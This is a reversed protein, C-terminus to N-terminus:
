RSSVDKAPQLTAPEQVPRERFLTRRQHLAESLTRSFRTMQNMQAAFRTWYSLLILVMIMVQPSSLTFDLIGYLIITPLAFLFLTASYNLKTNRSIKQVKFLQYGGILLIAIFFLACFIGSSSLISLFLDHAHPIMSGNNASYVRLFGFNTAGFFPNQQFIHWSNGWIELRKAMSTETGSSRPMWDYLVKACVVTFLAAPVFLRKSLKFIFLLHLLIMIVFGARSGTEYIAFDLLPMLMLSLFITAKKKLQIARLLEVSLCAVALILLYCAYNPNFTSGYLRPVGKYGFLFHGTMFSVATGILSDDPILTLLKESFFIYVGGWITIWAFQRLRLQEPRRLWFLYIGFYGILMATSLLDFFRGSILISGLSAVVTMALFISILDTPLAKKAAFQDYLMKVACCVFWAMGIPPLIYLFILGLIMPHQKVKDLGYIM